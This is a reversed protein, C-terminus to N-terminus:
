GPKFGDIINPISRVNDYQSFLIFEQDIFDKYQIEGSMQPVVDPDM